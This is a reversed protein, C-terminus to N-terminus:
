FERFGCFNNLGSRELLITKVREFRESERESNEVLYDFQEFLVEKEKLESTTTTLETEEKSM